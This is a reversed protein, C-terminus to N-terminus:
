KPISILDRDCSPAQVCGLIPQRTGKTNCLSGVCMLLFFNVEWGMWHCYLLQFPKQTEHM